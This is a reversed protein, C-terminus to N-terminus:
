GRKLLDRHRELTLDIVADLLPHGPCVFAALPQGPPAVLPKEFVIREYRALVPEGVGIARDRRRLPAPVHTVEYRRTERQRVAGGLRQFAESFFSEIYHPQLRRAEAREMEERVRQVRTADMADHVLQREQLLDQLRARPPAPEVRVAGRARRGSRDPEATGAADRVADADGGRAAADGAVAARVAEGDRLQRPVGAAPAGPVAGAGLLGGGGGPRRLYEAHSALLTDARAARRYPKWEPQRLCYRVTKRDLDLERAIARISGGAGARRHIEEWRDRGVMEVEGLMQQGPDITMGTTWM